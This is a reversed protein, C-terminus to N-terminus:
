FKIVPYAAILKEADAARGEIRLVEALIQQDGRLLESSIDRDSRLVSYLILSEPSLTIEAQRAYTTANTAYVENVKVSPDEAANKIREFEERKLHGGPLASYAAFDNIYVVEASEQAEPKRPENSEPQIREAGEKM